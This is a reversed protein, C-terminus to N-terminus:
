IPLEALVTTGSGPASQVQLRGGVAEARERMSHLGLGPDQHLALPRFGAGDDQVSLRLSGNASLTVAVERPVGHRVANTMAERTIKLVAERVDPRVEVREVDLRVETGARLALATAIRQVAVDLPEDPDSALASIAHRSEVLAQDAAEVLREVEEGTPPDDAFSRLGSAIYALEQALGDHLDRAIRRREELVAARALRPQYSAIERVSAVVITLHYALRLFDGTHVWHSYLSPFLFYHVRALAGLLAATALWRFFDDHTRDSRRAFGLGAAVLAFVAFVQAVEVLAAGAIQPRMSSEPSLRPDVPTPLGGSFVLALALGTALTACLVLLARREALAPTRVPRLPFWAAVAFLCFGITDSFVRAWVLVDSSAVTGVAPLVAFLLTSSALIGLACALGLDPMVSAQRFRALLLYAALLGILGAATELAAHGATSRYAFHVGPTVTIVVTAVAALLALLQMIRREAGIRVLAAM